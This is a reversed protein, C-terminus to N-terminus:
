SAKTAIAAITQDKDTSSKSSQFWWNVVQVFGQANLIGLLASVLNTDLHGPVLYVLMDFGLVGLVVALTVWFREDFKM